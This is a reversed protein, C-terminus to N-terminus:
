NGGLSAQDIRAREGRRRSDFCRAPDFRGRAAIGRETKAKTGWARAEDASGFEVLVALENPDSASRYIRESTEGFEKRVPYLEDFVARWKPYDAVKHPVYLTAM